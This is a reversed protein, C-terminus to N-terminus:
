NQRVAPIRLETAEERLTSWQSKEPWPPDVADSSEAGVAVAVEVRFVGPDFQQPYRTRGPDGTPEFTRHSVRFSVKADPGADFVVEPQESPPLAALAGVDLLWADRLEGDAGTVQNKKLFANLGTLSHLRREVVNPRSEPVFLEVLAFPALPGTETDIIDERTRVYLVRNTASDVELSSEPLAQEERPYFDGFTSLEQEAGWVGPWFVPTVVLPSAVPPATSSRLEAVLIAVLNRVGAQADRSEAGKSHAGLGSTLLKVMLLGLVLALTTAIIAEVLTLGAKGCKRM